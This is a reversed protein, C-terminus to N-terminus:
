NAGESQGILSAVIEAYRRSSEIMQAQNYHDNTTDISAHGLISKTLLASAPADRVLTTVSADRFLHPTLSRGFAVRTRRAISKSFAGPDVPRGESSIWLATEVAYATPGGGLEGSVYGARSLLYPRYADLYRQLPALLSAPFAAGFPRKSKMAEAPLAMGTLHDGVLHVGLRIGAFTAIRLPRRILLAIALGDRYM